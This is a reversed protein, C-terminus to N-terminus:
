PCSEYASTVRLATIGSWPLIFTHLDLTHGRVPRILFLREQNHLLLRGCDSAILDAM